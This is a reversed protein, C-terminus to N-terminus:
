KEKKEMVPPKFAKLAAVINEEIASAVNFYLQEVANYYANISTVHLNNGSQLALQDIHALLM